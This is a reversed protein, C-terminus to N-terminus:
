IKDVLLFPYKHPLSREIKRIDYVPQKNPDYSPIGNMNKSERIFNKIKRAFAVNSAHSPKTAIIKAKIPTGILALDGVVDLLKHRAPENKYRLSVNNLYGEEVEIDDRHFLTALKKLQGDDLKHDVIVLANDLSGGRILNNNVMGEIEHLFCFT